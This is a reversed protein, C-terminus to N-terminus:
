TVLYLQRTGFMQWGSWSQTLVALRERNGIREFAYTLYDFGSTIPFGNEDNPASEGHLNTVNQNAGAGLATVGVVPEIRRADIVKGLLDTQAV